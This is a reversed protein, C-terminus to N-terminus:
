VVLGRLKAIASADRPDSAQLYACAAHLASDVDSTSVGLLFAIQNTTYRRAFLQLVVLSRGTLVECVPASSLAMDDESQHDVFPM